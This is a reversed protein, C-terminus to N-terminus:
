DYIELPPMRDTNYFWNGAELERSLWHAPFLVLHGTVGQLVKEAEEKSLVHQNRFHSHRLRRGKRRRRAKITSELNRNAASPRDDSIALTEALERESAKAVLQEDAADAPAEEAKRRVTDSAPEGPEANDASDASLVDRQTHEASSRGASAQDRAFAKGFNVYDMYEKWNTVEDDPQCRFVHRFIETNRIAAAQWANYYFSEDLPDWPVFPNVSIARLEMGALEETDEPLEAEEPTMGAGSLDAGSMEEYLRTKFDTLNTPPNASDRIRRTAARARELVTEAAKEVEDANDGNETTHHSSQKAREEMHDYGRGEVDDRHKPNDQVRSDKSIAKKDRLGLNYEGWYYNFSHLEMPGEDNDDYELASQLSATEDLGDHHMSPTGGNVGNVGNAGSSSISGNPRHGHGHAHDLGLRVFLREAHEEILDFLECDIGMHERMLRMRLTHAFKAVKYPRGGMVTELQHTDRVFCALESDRVGRMSRENINASGIIAIRDDVVMTKAHIYLQETVLNKQPGIKGWKRLSFFQIYDEPHIGASELRGFISHPGRSISMYQCQMIVRVSSGEAEDVQSEFGPMLPIVIIAKWDEGNKNARLAREVLADGIRNEIRTGDVVTSTIFFQNEIYVLHESEEIAKLYANQISQEHQKLGLSWRCSSRLIQYECTGNLHLGKLEEDTFDPPPLLLPTFRSPRKQRLVYNWRQVFHRALDRAPQGLVLGHVDHWPMRPVEQRNYMDEYPKNLEFFDKVRPNSYDKGPFIQTPNGAQDGSNYFPAPADDVLVHEPTDWRGFCLDIGGMFAITHDIITCKEHHAWFFTNQLLQNPSRMVHINEHLDLLSHKTYMSDIPITQGVNRYVIVFIKVGQEAKRKLIRDLRWQQNGEPPRRLYLEPSLWWDLIYICDRAFELAESLRWMYDRADVFWRAYVNKRVPAFSEFRNPRSWLTREKMLQISEVFTSIEKEQTASFKILRENNEVTFSYRSAHRSDDESNDNHDNHDSHEHDSDNGTHGGAKHKSVTFSPDVLFVELVDTAVISDVVLIYSHRVMVWKYTHRLVMQALDDPRWHSVRWGRDTARTRIILSGEKGHYSNESMLKISMNSLELFQLLKNSDVRFRFMHLLKQLYVTLEDAFADNGHSHYRHLAIHHHHQQSDQVYPEPPPSLPGHTYSSAAPLSTTISPVPAQPGNPIDSMNALSTSGNAVSGNTTANGAPGGAPGGAVGNPESSYMSGNPGGDIIFSDSVGSNRNSSSPGARSSPRVPLHSASPGDLHGDEVLPEGEPLPSLRPSLRPSGVPSGGRSENTTTSAASSVLSARRGDARQAARRARRAADGPKPLRPLKGPKAAVFVSNKVVGAKFNQTKLRSHLNSFERYDKIVYWSLRAPGSGYELDIRFRKGHTPVVRLRIQELLVPVKRMSKEDRQLAGALIMAAPALAMLENVLETSKKYDEPNVPKRKATFRQRFKRLNKMSDPALSRRRKAKASAPTEEQGPRPTGGAEDAIGGVDINGESRSRAKRPRGPIDGDREVFSNLRDLLASRRFGSRKKEMSPRSGEGQPTPTRPPALGPSVRESAPATLRQPVPALPSPSRFYGDEDRHARGGFQPERLGPGFGTGGIGSSTDAVAEGSLESPQRKAAEEVPQEGVQGPGEQAPSKARRGLWGRGDPKPSETAKHSDRDNDPRRHEAEDGSHEHHTELGTGGGFPNVADLAQKLTALGFEPIETASSM